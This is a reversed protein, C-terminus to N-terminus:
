QKFFAEKDVTFKQTENIRTDASPADEDPGRATVRSSLRQLEDQIWGLDEPTSPLSMSWDGNTPCTVLPDENVDDGTIADDGFVCYIRLRPGHGYVVIPSNKPAESNIVSAAVGAISQFESRAVSTPDPAIMDVIKAWTEGSSRHPTSAIRRALVTTM